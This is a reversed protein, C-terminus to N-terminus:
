VEKKSLEVLKRLRHNLASKTLAPEFLLALEALTSDPNEERLIATKRLSESLEDLQGTQRLTRIASIQIQAAEVVKELNASDCNVRRNVSGVITKEVKATMVKLACNTAGIAVLFDEILESKKLYIIEYGKRQTEKPSFGIEHMLATMEGSINRHSTAFELHYSKQPNSVSGGALFAGRVFAKKCCTEELKGFNIHHSITKREIDLIDYIREIKEIDTILISRKGSEAEPIVDFSVRFAKKFLISLFRVFDSNETTIRISDSSFTNCYLLVGYAQAVACCHKLPEIACLESKVESSFSM